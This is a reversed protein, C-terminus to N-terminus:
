DSGLMRMGIDEIEYDDGNVTVIGFCDKSVISPMPQRPEVWEGGNSYYAMLFARVETVYTRGATLTPTPQRVDAGHCEGRLKVLTAAALAHYEKATITDLPRGDFPM